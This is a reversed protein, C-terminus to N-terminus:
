KILSVATLLEQRYVKQLPVEKGAVHVSLNNITELHKLNIAYSRHVRFFDEKMYEAIFDDIKQRVVFRKQTTYINLYVNESEIYLINNTEIKHFLEGEKIFIFDKLPTIKKASHQLQNYNSFAIEIASYLDNENFPKVLYACPKVEKARNITAADSNATLFIFPLQFEKNITAALDIGDKDGEIVIDVLLLDPSETRIMQLADAYSRVPQTPHYGIQQLTVSISEAILLDDEVIGIKLPHM